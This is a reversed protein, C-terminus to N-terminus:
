RVRDLLGAAEDIIFAKFALASPSLRKSARHVLYWARHIPLGPIDLEVLRGSKVELEVADRSILALGLGAQVSQKIAEASGVEISTTVNIRHEAMFREMAGRTGSGPERMLFVQDSLDTLSISKKKALPHDPPAVIVLANELFPEAQLDENEPPRGMIVMNVTNEALERLLEQRNAVGMSVTIGPHRECFTRLLIPSFYNVTTVTSIRLSGRRVGKLDDVEASLADFEDIIARAHKMLTQGAETLSVSRGVQEFLALGVIEELGKLQISVAPQTLNVEEAARTYSGLRAVAEFLKIQKLTPQISVAQNM